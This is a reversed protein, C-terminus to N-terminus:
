ENIRFIMAANFYLGTSDADFSGGNTYSESYASIFHYAATFSFSLVQPLHVNLGVVPGFGYGIVDGVLRSNTSGAYVDNYLSGKLQPGLWLRVHKTRLVGFGFDHTMAYGDMDLGANAANNEEKLFTFRYNFIMDRAVATDVVFGMNRVDRDGVLQVRDKEWEESGTGFSFGLGVAHSHTTILPLLFALVSTILKNHTM